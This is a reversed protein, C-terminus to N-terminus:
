PAVSVRYVMVHRYTQGPDLRATGIPMAWEPHHPTDAPLGPELAIGDGQRYRHGSKGPASGDFGNGTYLQLAPETTLVELVRGTQADSLRAALHPQPTRGADLVFAHDFGKALHLQEDAGDRLLPDLAHPRRLDFVTNQVPRLEGTPLMGRALVAVRGAPISLSARTASAGSAEGALNFFAHNTLNIVTARTTTAVFSIALAGANDLTYTLTLHLAGPYGADGDPSTLALQASATTGSHTAELTFLQRDFGQGGGHVSNPGAGNRRLPYTTGDLTIAAGAIRNAYRGVTAGMFDQHAEYEAPTDHGLLIDARTGMRDPAVLAQLLGGYTLIRASVGHDNTLVIAQVARGDALKGADEVRATAAHAPAAVLLLAAGWAKV